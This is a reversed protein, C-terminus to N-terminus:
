SRATFGYEDSLNLLRHGYVQQLDLDLVLVFFVNKNESSILVHEYRGSPDRYVYDVRSGSFFFGGLEEKPLSDFYPWFDFPPEM